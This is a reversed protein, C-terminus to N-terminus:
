RRGRTSKIAIGLLMAGLVVMALMFPWQYAKPLYFALFLAKIDVHLLKLIIPVLGQGVLPLWCMGWYVMGMQADKTQKHTTPRKVTFTFHHGIPLVLLWLLGVPWLFVWFLTIPIASWWGWRTGLLAHFTFLDYKMKLAKM